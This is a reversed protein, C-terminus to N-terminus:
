KHGLVGILCTDLLGAEPLAVIAIWVVDFEHELIGDENLREKDEGGLSVSSLTSM